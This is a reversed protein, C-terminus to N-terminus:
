LRQIQFIMCFGLLKKGKLAKTSQSHTFKTTENEPFFKLGKLAPFFYLNGKLAILRQPLKLNTVLTALQIM